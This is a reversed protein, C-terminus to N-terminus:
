PLKYRKDKVGFYYSFGVFTSIYAFQKWGGYLVPPNVGDDNLTTEYDGTPVITEKLLLNAHTYKFGLNLGFNREFSYGLGVLVSYGLRFANKIKVERVPATPNTLDPPVFLKGNIVSAAINGGLFFKVKNTPTFMYETGAEGSFDNYYVKGQKTNDTILNSQFRNFAGTVALWFGGKKDLPLKGTLFIGYGNRAGYSRGKVIDDLVFGGNHGQLEMAGSNFSGSIQLAFKPVTRVVIIRIVRKKITTVTDYVIHTEVEQSFSISGEGILALLFIFLYIKHPRIM